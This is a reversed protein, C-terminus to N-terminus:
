PCIPSCAQLRCAAQWSNEQLNEPSKGVRATRSPGRPGRSSRAAPVQGCAACSRTIKARPPSVYEASRFDRWLLLPVVARDGAVAARLYLLVSIAAQEFGRAHGRTGVKGVAAVRKDRCPSLSLHAADRHRATRHGSPPTAPPERRNRCFSPAAPTLVIVSMEPSRRAWVGPALVVTRHHFAALEPRHGVSVVTADKLERMLRKMLRDQSPLDLSATAEDLVVIDPRILFVRAFALCQKEGGSLIRDWPADEDLHEALHGLDVKQLAAAIEGASRSDAADPYSVVRRLSGAPLYARQPLVLLRAGARVEIRGRGWPWAGALARVLTSKGTGAAGTLLLKEGPMVSLEAGAVLAVGDARLVSVDRLRLAARPHGGREIRGAQARALAALSM